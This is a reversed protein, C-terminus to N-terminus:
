VCWRKLFCTILTTRRRECEAGERVILSCTRCVFLGQLLSFCVWCSRERRRERERRRRDPGEAGFLMQVPVVQGEWPPESQAGPHYHHHQSVWHRRSSEPSRPQYRQLAVGGEGELLLSCDLQPCHQQTAAAPWPLLTALPYHSIMISAKLPPANHNSPPQPQDTM